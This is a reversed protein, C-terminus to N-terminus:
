SRFAQGLRLMVYVNLRIGQKQSDKTKGWGFKTRRLGTQVYDAFICRLWACPNAIRLEPAVCMRPEQILTMGWGVLEAIRLEPTSDASSRLDVQFFYIMRMIEIKWFIEFDPAM